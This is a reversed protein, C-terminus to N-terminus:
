FDCPDPDFTLTITLIPDRVFATPSAVVDIHKMKRETGGWRAM